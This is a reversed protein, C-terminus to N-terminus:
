TGVNFLVNGRSDKVVVHDWKARSHKRAQAIIEALMERSPGAKPISQVENASLVVEFPCPKLRLPAPNIRHVEGKYPSHAGLTAVGARIKVRPRHVDSVKKPLARSPGGFLDFTAGGADYPNPLVGGASRLAEVQKGSLRSKPKIDFFGWPDKRETPTALPDDQLGKATNFGFAYPNTGTARAIQLLIKRAARPGIAASLRPLLMEDGEHPVFAKVLEEKASYAQEVYKQPVKKKLPPNKKKM